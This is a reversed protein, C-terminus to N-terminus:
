PRMKPYAILQLEYKFDSENTPKLRIFDRELEDIKFKWNDQNLSLFIHDGASNIKFSGHQKPRDGITSMPQIFFSEDDFFIIVDKQKLLQPAFNGGKQKVTNIVWIRSSNNHFSSYPVVKIMTEQGTCSALLFLLVTLKFIM